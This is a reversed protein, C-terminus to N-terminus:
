YDGNTDFWGTKHAVDGGHKTGVLEDGRNRWEYAWSDWCMGDNTGIDIRGYIPRGEDDKPANECVAKCAKLVESRTKGQVERPPFGARHQEYLVSIEGIFLKRM